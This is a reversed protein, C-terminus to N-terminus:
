SGNEILVVSINDDGGANLAYEVLRDVKESLTGEGRVTRTMESEPVLNSLGDSCLLLLDGASWPLFVLDVDVDAETGLARTIVNRRPHVAAEDPTLQGTKVLENVLTHDETIQSVTEHNIYYARSDGIHGILVRSADALAATVTTGMGRYHEKGSAVEFVKANAERIADVLRAKREADDLEGSVRVLASELLEITIQSATDGAQHGGMGDAVIALTCGAVGDKVVIRDENVSRVRGVDTKYATKLM